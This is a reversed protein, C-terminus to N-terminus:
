LLLSSSEKTTPLGFFDNQLYNPSTMTKNSISIKHENQIKFQQHNHFNLPTFLKIIVNNTM